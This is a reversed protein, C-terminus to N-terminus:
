AAVAQGGCPDGLCKGGDLPHDPSAKGGALALVTPMIDVMHLPETVVRPQLHGPWNAFAVVRVGGEHLTGKGGRLNGNSAPPKERVSAAAKRANRRPARAPRSCRM